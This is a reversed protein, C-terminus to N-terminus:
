DINTFIINITNTIYNTIYLSLIKEPTSWIGKQNLQAEKMSTQLKETYKYDGYLYAVEALGEKILADQLLIDDAWVWVLYRDYKDLKESDNDFELIIKDASTILECTYNSAEDGFLEEEIDPHSVEPTDIALFRTKIEKGNMIFRATDGDVCKSFKVEIKETYDIKSVYPCPNKTGLNEGKSYWLNDRFEAEHYHKDKAHYGYTVGDCSVISNQKLAGGSANISMINFLFIFIIFIIKKM